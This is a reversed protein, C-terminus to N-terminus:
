GIYHQISPPLDKEMAKFYVVLKGFFILWAQNYIELQQEVTRIVGETRDVQKELDADTLQDIIQVLEQDLEEFWQMLQAVSEALGVEGNRYSWDHKLTKLSQVYTYQLEGIGKLLEELTPNGGGPSFRLETDDLLKLAGNRMMHCGFVRQKILENM